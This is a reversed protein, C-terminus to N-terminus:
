VANMRPCNPGLCVHLVIPPMIFLGRRTPSFMKRPVCAVTQAARISGAGPSGRPNAHQLQRAARFGFAPRIRYSHQTRGRAPEGLVKTPRAEDPEAPLAVLKHRHRQLM